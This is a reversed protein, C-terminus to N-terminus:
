AGARRLREAGDAALRDQHPGRSMRAAEKRANYALVWAGAAWAVQQETPSFQRGSAAQYAALFQETQGISAAVTDGLAPFVAAAAGAIAAEPRAGISDSDLVAAPAADQWLLNHAEWDLHGVVLELHVSRLRARLRRGAMEALVPGESYNLDDNLDDPVPWTGREGHDWGVWPPAPSLSGCSASTRALQVFRALLGAFAPVTAATPAVSSAGQILIEATVLASGVRAPGALPQPVPFGADALHCQVAWCAAVRDDDARVKIAVARGDALEVGYVRSLHGATLLLTVPAAGLAKACWTAIEPPLVSGPQRADSPM